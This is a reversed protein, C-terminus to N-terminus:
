NDKLFGALTDVRFQGPMMQMMRQSNMFFKVSEFTCDQPYVFFISNGGARVIFEPYTDTVKHQILTNCLREVTHPPSQKDIGSIFIFGHRHNYDKKLDDISLQRELISM